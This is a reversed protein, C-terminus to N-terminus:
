YKNNSFLSVIKTQQSIKFEDQEQLFQELTRKPKQYKKNSNVMPQFTGVEQNKLAEREM